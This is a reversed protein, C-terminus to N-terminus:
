DLMGRDFKKAKGVDKEVHASAVGVGVFMPGEYADDRSQIGFIALFLAIRHGFEVGFDVFDPHFTDEM